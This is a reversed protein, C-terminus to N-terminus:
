TDSRGSLVFSPGVPSARSARTIGSATKAAHSRNSLPFGYLSTMASRRRATAHLHTRSTLGAGRESRTSTKSGHSIVPTPPTAIAHSGISPKANWITVPTAAASTPTNTPEYASNQVDRSESGNAAAKAAPSGSATTASLRLSSPRPRDDPVTTTDSAEQEPNQQEGEVHGLEFQRDIQQLRDRESRPLCRWGGEIFGHDLDGM